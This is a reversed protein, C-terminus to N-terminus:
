KETEWSCGARIVVNDEKWDESMDVNMVGVFQIIMDEGPRLEVKCESGTQTLVFKEGNGLVLEMYIAKEDTDQVEERITKVNIECEEKPQCM